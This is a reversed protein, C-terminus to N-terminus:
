PKNISISFSLLSRGSFLSVSFGSSSAFPQVFRLTNTTSVDFGPITIHLNANNGGTRDFTINSLSGVNQSTIVGSSNVSYAGMVKVTRYYDTAPGPDTVLSNVTFTAEVSFYSSSPVTVSHVIQSGLTTTFSYKTGSIVRSSTSISSLSVGNSNGFMVFENSNLYHSINSNSKFSILLNNGENNKIIPYGSANIGIDFGDNSGFGTTTGATFKLFSAAGNGNDIHVRAAPGSISTNQSLLFGTTNIIARQAGGVTIGIVNNFPHYFGTTDNNFWTYDPETATSFSNTARIRASSVPSNDTNFTTDKTLSISDPRFVASANTYIGNASNIAATSGSRTLIWVEGIDRFKIAGSGSPNNFFKDSGDNYWNHAIVTGNDKQIVFPQSSGGDGNIQLESAPSDTNIGVKGSVNSTGNAAYIPSSTLGIASSWRAIYNTDGSGTLDALTWTSSSENWVYTKREDQLFVRLGDYKYVIADRDISNSAVIRSDIPLAVNVIFQESINIAM